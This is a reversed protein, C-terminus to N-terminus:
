GQEAWDGKVPNDKQAEFVQRALETHPRKLLAQLYMLRRSPIVQKLPTAETELYLFETQVKSHAGLIYRLLMRDMVKLDEIKRNTM